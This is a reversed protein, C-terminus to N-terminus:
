QFTFLSEMLQSWWLAKKGHSSWFLLGLLTVPLIGAHWCGGAEAAVVKRCCDDLSLFFLFTSLEPFLESDRFDCLSKGNCKFYGVSPDCLVWYGTKYKGLTGERRVGM